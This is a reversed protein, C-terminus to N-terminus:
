APSCSSLGVWRFLLIPGEQPHASYFEAVVATVQPFDQFEPHAWLELVWRPTPLPLQPSTVSCSRLGQM